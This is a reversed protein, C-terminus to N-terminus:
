KTAAESMHDKDPSELYGIYETFELKVSTVSDCMLICM